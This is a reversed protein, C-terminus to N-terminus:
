YTGKNIIDNLVEDAQEIGSEHAFIFHKIANIRDKTVGQGMLLSLAYNYEAKSNGKMASSRFYEFAKIYEKKSHFSMGKYYDELGFDNFNEKLQKILYDNDDILYGILENMEIESLTNLKKLAEKYSKIWASSMNGFSCVVGVIVEATCIVDERSTYQKATLITEIIRYTYDMAM